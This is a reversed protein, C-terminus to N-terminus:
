VNNLLQPYLVSNFDPRTMAEAKNQSRVIM